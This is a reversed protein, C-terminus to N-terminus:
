SHIHGAGGHPQSRTLEYNARNCNALARSNFLPRGSSNKVISEGERKLTMSM